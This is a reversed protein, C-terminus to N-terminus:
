ASAWVSVSRLRPAPENCCLLQVLAVAHRSSARAAAAPSEGDVQSLMRIRADGCALELVDCRAIAEVSQLRLPQKSQGWV